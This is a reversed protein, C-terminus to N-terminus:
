QSIRLVASALGAAIRRCGGVVVSQAFGLAACAALLPIIRSTPMGALALVTGLVPFTVPAAVYPPSLRRPGPEQRGTALRDGPPSTIADIPM